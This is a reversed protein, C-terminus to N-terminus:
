GGLGGSLVEALKHGEFVNLDQAHVVQTPGINPSVARDDFREDVQTLHFVVGGVFNITEVVADVTPQGAQDLVVAAHTM